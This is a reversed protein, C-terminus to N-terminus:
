YRPPAETWSIEEGFLLDLDVVIIGNSTAIYLDNKEPSYDIDAIGRGVYLSKNIKHRINHITIKGELRSAGALLPFREYISSVSFPGSYTRVLTMKEGEAQVIGKSFPRGLYVKYSNSGYVVTLAGRGININQRRRLVRQVWEEMQTDIPFPGARHGILIRKITNSVTLGGPNETELNLKMCQYQVDEWSTGHGDISPCVLLYAGIDTRVTAYVREDTSDINEVKAGDLITAPLTFRGIPKYPDMAFLKMQAVQGDEAAAVLVDSNRLKHLRGFRTNGLRDFIPTPSPLELRGLGKEADDTTFYVVTGAENVKVQEVALGQTGPLQVAYGFKPPHTDLYVVPHELIPAFLFALALIGAAMSLMGPRTQGFIVKRGLIFFNLVVLLGILWPLLLRFEDERTLATALIALGTFHHIVLATLVGNRGFRAFGWTCLVAATAWLIVVSVALGHLYLWYLDRAQYLVGAFLVLALVRYILLRAPLPAPEESVESRSKAIDLFSKVATGIAVFILVGLLIKPWTEFHNAIKILTFESISSFAAPLFLIAGLGFTESNRQEM